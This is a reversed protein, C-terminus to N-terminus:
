STALQPLGLSACTAKDGPFVAAYGNDLRCATLPPVPHTAGPDPVVVTGPTGVQLIGARWIATCQDLANFGVRTGNTPEALTVSTGPCTDSEDHTVTSYCRATQPATTAPAFAVFAAATGGVLTLAVTGTLVGARATSRRSPPRGIEAVLHARRRDLVAVPLARATPTPPLLLDFEDHNM